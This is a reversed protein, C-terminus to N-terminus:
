EFAIKIASIARYKDWEPLFKESDTLLQTTGILDYFKGTRGRDDRDLFKQDCTIEILQSKEVEAPM